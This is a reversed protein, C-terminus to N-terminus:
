RYRGLPKPCGPPHQCSDDRQLAGSLHQSSAGPLASSLATDFERRSYEPKLAVPLSSSSLPPLARQESPGQQLPAAARTQIVRGGARGVRLLGMHLVAWGTVLQALYLPAPEPAFRLRQDGLVLCLSTERQCHRPQAKGRGWLAGRGKVQKGPLGGKSDWGGLIGM